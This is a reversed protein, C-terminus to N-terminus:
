PQAREWGQEMVKSVHLVLGFWVSRQRSSAASTCLRRALLSVAVLFAVEFRKNNNNGNTKQKQLRMLPLPSSLSSIGSHGVITMSLAMLKKYGGLSNKVEASPKAM